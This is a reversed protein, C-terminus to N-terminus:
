AATAILGTSHQAPRASSAEDALLARYIRDSIRRKLLRLAEKVTKGPALQQAYYAAGEGSGRAQTIAIM